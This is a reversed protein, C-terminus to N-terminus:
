FIVEVFVLSGSGSHTPSSLETSGVGRKQTAMQLHIKVSVKGCDLLLVCYSKKEYRTYTFTRQRRTLVPTLFFELFAFWSGDKNSVKKEPINKHWIITQCM